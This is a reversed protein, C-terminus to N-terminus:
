QTKKMKIWRPAMELSMMRLDIIERSREWSTMPITFYLVVSKRPM